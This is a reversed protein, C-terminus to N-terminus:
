HNAPLTAPAGAAQLLLHEMIATATAPSYGYIGDMPEGVLGASLDEASFYVANHDQLKIARLRPTKTQGGLLKGASARYSFTAIPGPAGTYIPDELALTKDLQNANDGFIQKLEEQVAQAFAASGGAADVVLTGGGDVYKKIEARQDDTLRFKDTGTLSAIKHVPNLKGEGLNVTDCTLALRDHNHVVAALRRWGGPEPNWNGTYQLRAVKISKTTPSSDTEVIYTEDKRLPRKETVYMYINGVVEHLAEHGGVASTQWYRAPDSDPFVLILERVGNSLGEIGIRQTGKGLHFQNNFIIHDQPLQRFEYDPFMQHALGKPGIISTTFSHAKLPCDANVLILGGDECFERLKAVQEDTLTVAQNGAMYLIPSDHLQHSPVNLNVVQWNYFSESARGFWRSLNAADRPRENWHVDKKTDGHTDIDYQLKNMMVPARGRNLFVLAFATNAVLGGHGDWSGNPKQHKVLYEAGEKFWDVAGFYKYGAATGIREAGYLGYPIFDWHPFGSQLMKAFNDSMWKLGDDIHKNNLNGKCEVGDNGHLFDQLLFLSAIGAATMTQLHGPAKEPYAWNGDAAQERIWADEMTQWTKQQVEFGNIACAWLGLVAYQSNSDDFYGGAAWKQGGKNPVNLIYGYLGNATGTTKMSKLLIQGDREIFPAIEKMKKPEYVAWMDWVLCRIGLAYTGVIDANKLFEIGAKVHTENPHEGIAMLAYTAVATMGGWNGNSTSVEGELGQIALNRQPVDEWSGNKQAGYLFQKARDIAKDVEDPTVAGAAPLITAWCMAWVCIIALFFKM